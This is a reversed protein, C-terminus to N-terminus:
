GIKSALLRKFAPLNEILKKGYSKKTIRNDLVTVVGRDSPTRILRGVAQTLRMSTEPLTHVNFPNQQHRKLWEYKTQEVPTTPVAFPLKTIVVQQCYSGPLDVGESFSQLGFLISLKGDDVLQCHSEILAQKNRDGQKLIKKQWKSELGDYVFDMMWRSTFLVLVGATSKEFIAPLMDLVEQAHADSQGGQPSHTMAPFHLESEEYPFPSDFHALMPKEDALGVKNVYSDFSGLARLTASCLVVSNEIKDWFFPKLLPAADIWAAQVVWDSRGRHQGERWELWRALPQDQDLQWLEATRMLEHNRKMLVGVAALIREYDQLTKSDYNQTLHQYITTLAGSLITAQQFLQTALEQSESLVDMSLCIGHKDFEYRDCATEFLKLSDRIHETSQSVKKVLPDSLKMSAQWQTVQTNLSKLWVQAGKVPFQAQFHQLAKAPLHHAEDIIYVTKEMSPLLVGSGMALDALLLDHNTVIVESHYLQRKSKFYPCEQFYACRRNTCSNVDATLRGWLADSISLSLNDRDGQWDGNDLLDQIEAVKDQDRGSPKAEIGFLSLQAASSDHFSFAQSLCIYRSRGKAIQCRWQTKLIKQVLPLDKKLLQEQLNVTATAIVLRQDEKLNLLAPILYALTKGVGTGGEIVAVQDHRIAQDIKTVMEVQSDRRELGADKLCTLVSDLDM